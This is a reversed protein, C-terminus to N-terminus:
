NKPSKSLFAQIRTQSDESLLLKMFERAEYDIRQRLTEPERQLLELTTQRAAAPLAMLTQVANQAATLAKGTATIESILGHQLAEQAGWTKGLLLLNISALHGVRAPLLQSSAAEPSLGLQAFAYRFKAEPGAFVADCHLLLTAGIGVAFGEVAAIKLCRLEAILHLFDVIVALEGVSKVRAFDAIDNGACFDAGEGSFLVCVLDERDRHAKITDCLQRYMALTVANKKDPRTFRLHLCGQTFRTELESM